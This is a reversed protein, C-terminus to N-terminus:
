LNHFHQMESATDGGREDHHMTGDLERVDGGGRGNFEYTGGHWFKDANRQAPGRKRRSRRSRRSRMTSSGGHAPSPGPLAPVAMGEAGATSHLSMDLASPGGLFSGALPASRDGDGGTAPPRPPLLSAAQTSGPPPLFSSLTGKTDPNGQGDPFSFMVFERYETTSALLRILRSNDAQPHPPTLNFATDLAALRKHVTLHAVQTRLRLDQAERDDMDALRGETNALKSETFSLKEKYSQLEMQVAELQM